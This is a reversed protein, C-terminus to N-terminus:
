DGASPAGGNQKFEAIQDATIKGDEVLDHIEHPLLDDREWPWKGDEDGLRNHPRGEGISLGMDADELAAEATELATDLVSRSLEQTVAERRVSVSNRGDQLAVSFTVRLPSPLDLVERLGEVEVEKPTPVTAGPPLRELQSRAAQVLDRPPRVTVTGLPHESAYDKSLDLDNHELVPLVEILLAEVASRYYRRAQLESISGDIRREGV